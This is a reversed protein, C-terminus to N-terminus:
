IMRLQQISCDPSVWQKKQLELLSLVAGHKSFHRYFDPYKAGWYVIACAMPAGKDNEGNIFKLRTDALFCVGSAKGFIYLKWHKTNAAVPVLALVESGHKGNAEACRRIWDKISTGNSKDIGYPPNVYITPFDWSDRLGDNKPLIYEIKANVVSSVNSCPDLHIEGFFKRIVDVYKPPTCWDKKDSINQRGATM